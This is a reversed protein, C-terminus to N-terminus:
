LPKRYLVWDAGGEIPGDPHKPATDVVEFGQAEYLARAARRASSVILSLAGRKTAHARDQAAGMLARGLGKRRWDPRTAIVNVYWSGPVRAELAVLPQVPAPLSELDVPDPADELPYGILGAAVTADPAEVVLANRWSFGGEDRQARRRGVGHLDEGPAAMRAWLYQPVGDGAMLIFDVLVAADDPTAPRFTLNPDPM